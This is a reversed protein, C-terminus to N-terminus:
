VDIESLSLVLKFSDHKLKIKFAYCILLKCMVVISEM